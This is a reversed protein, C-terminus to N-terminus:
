ANAVLFYSIVWSSGSADQQDIIRSPDIPWRTYAPHHDPGFGLRWVEKGKSGAAVMSAYTSPNSTPYIFPGGSTFLIALKGPISLNAQRINEALETIKAKATAHDWGPAGALSQYQTMLEQMMGQAESATGPMGGARMGRTIVQRRGQALMNKKGRDLMADMFNQISTLAAPDVTGADRLQQIVEHAANVNVKKYAARNFFREASSKGRAM